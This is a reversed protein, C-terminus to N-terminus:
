TLKKRPNPLFGTEEFFALHRKLLDPTIVPCDIGSAVNTSTTDLRPFARGGFVIAEFDDLLPNLANDRDAQVRRIWEPTDLVDLEHGSDRMSRVIEAFSVSTQNHLHFTGGASSLSLATVVQSVYDVPVMHFAGGLERPVAGAQAIGKTALWVFDRTQCAGKVRDGCVTDVRYVTVPLGRSRATDIMAEAVWKSQRYGSSLNEPPGTLDEPRLAAPSAKEFVGVTSIYHVPVSRHRAALRLIEETGSVNAPALNRYPQLWNVTSGAHYVCDMDSALLDFAEPTLGLRPQSLDGRLVKVREPDVDIGYCALNERLRARCSEDDAGRVLCHVVANTQRVLDRLLFAGLFGTAGTLLVQRPDGPPRTDQAPVIDDALRAEAEFDVTDADTRSLLSEALSRVTPHDFVLSVPLPMGTATVIRNRLEAAALSQLGLDVFSRDVDISAPPKGLVASVQLRLLAVMDVRTAPPEVAQATTERPTVPVAGPLGRLWHPRRRFPYPPLSVAEGASPPLLSDWDVDTGHVYARALSRQFRRGGGDGRRLTGTVVSGEPASQEIAGALVPHTSVEIFRRCGLDGLKAIAQRLKVQGRINRCWHEATLSRTDMEDGTVTSVLPMTGPGPALDALQDRVLPLLPEVQTSHSAWGIAVSHVTVGKSRLKEVARSLDATDGSIVVSRPGNVAALSLGSGTTRLFEHMEEPSMRVAAMTGKGDLERAVHGRAAIIEAADELSLAGAVHAAVIEGVSHGTVADPTVGSSRWQAALATMTAFLMSQVVDARDAPPAAIMGLAMESVSWGLHPRLALDCKEFAEAFPTSNRLLDSAMGQWQQGHGAFVFATRGEHRRGTVADDHYEGTALAALAPAHDGHDDPLAVARIGLSSRGRVLTRAVDEPHSREGDAKGMAHMRAAWAQLADPSAASLIWPAPITAPLRTSSRHPPEEIIVHVNTGSIGFSSIGARRTGAPWPVARDLVRVSADSWDVQKNPPHGHLSKPLMRHQIALVMKIVGVLGSAAQTHGLNSKVSGVWVGPTRRAGYVDLLAQAEVLDGLPTGTGHAEVAQVDDVTLGANALAKRIVARQATGNPASLGNSTGDSNIASGRLVALVRHGDRRAASLPEVVLAAVGEAWGVGDAESAFAKCRGDSAILDHRSFDIFTAPTSMVTAGAVIARDCEGARIANVAQHLAVLSSSCATDVTIAPGHLGLVYAVRGSAVSAANGILLSGDYCDAAETVRPAYDSDFMGVFVGTDSGRLSAPDIGADELAHWAAELVLRQQPDMSDAEAPRIGFFEADFGAIDDLYGGLLPLRTSLHPDWGRQAPVRGVADREESLLKWLDDPGDIGGPLRCSMGVIVLPDDTDSDFPQRASARAALQRVTARADTTPRLLEALHGALDGPTPHDFLLNSALPLGTADRLSHALRVAGLSNLGHGRFTEQSGIDAPTTDGSLEKLVTRTHAVVMDLLAETSADPKQDLGLSREEPGVPVGVRDAVADRLRHRAIKGSATYPIEPVEVLEVPTKYPALGKARLHASVEHLSVPSGQTVALCPYEGLRPDSRGLVALPGAGPLDALLSEVESASFKQGGVDILEATRGHFAVLGDRTMSALDGTRLWRGDPLAQATLDADDLYGRFAYPSSVWLEGVEEPPSEAGDRMIRVRAGPIPRGISATAVEAPDDASTFMGAGLESMGWQVVVSAGFDERLGAVLSAPVHSGGTRVERLRVSRDRTRMRGLLDHLQTPVAFLVIPRDVTGAADVFRDTDWGPILLQTTRAFLSTHLSLLGFLHTFASASVLVDDPRFGGGTVVAAANSLLGDHSHMSIKPRASTTASSPILMFPDHPRVRVPHPRTGTFERVIERVTPHPTHGVGEDGAILLDAGLESLGPAVRGAPLVVVRPKARVALGILDQSSNGAHVPLLVGGALAVAAHLVLFEWSNPVQAVVVDHPELGREQLGRALAEASEGWQRWTWDQQGDRFAVAEPDAQVATRLLNPFTQGLLATDPLLHYDSATLPM